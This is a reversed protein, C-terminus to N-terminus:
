TVPRREEPKEQPSWLATLGSLVAVVGSVIEIAILSSQEVPPGAGRDLAGQLILGLGCVVALSAAVPRRGPVTAIRFGVLGLVIAIYTDNLSVSLGNPTQATLSGQAILLVVSLLLLAIGAPVAMPEHETPRRSEIRDVKAATIAADRRVQDDRVMDGPAVGEHTRGRVADMVDHHAEFEPRADYLGGGKAGLFTGLALLAVGVVSVPLSPAIIGAGVTIAGVVALLVGSWVM